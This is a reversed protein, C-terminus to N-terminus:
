RRQQPSFIQNTYPLTTPRRIAIFGHKAAQHCTNCAQTLHDFASAFKVADHADIAKALDPIEQATIAEVMPTLPVDDHVPHYHAVDEFGEKLEDLEYDALEWNGAKGAFWLKSHRMQQLTMFEGLGPVFAGNPPPAEEHHHMKMSQGEAGAASLLAMLAAAAVISVLKM